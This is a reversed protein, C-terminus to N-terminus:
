EAFVLNCLWWAVAFLITFPRHHRIEERMTGVDTNLTWARMASFNRSPKSRKKSRIMRIRCFFELTVRSKTCTENDLGLQLLSSFGNLLSAQWPNWNRVLVEAVECDQCDKLLCSVEQTDLGFTGLFIMKLWTWWCSGQGRELSHEELAFVRRQFVSGGISALIPLHGFFALALFSKSSDPGGVQQLAEIDSLLTGHMSLKTCHSCQLSGQNGQIYIEPSKMCLFFPLISIM